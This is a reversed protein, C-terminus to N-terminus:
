FVALCLIFCCFLFFSIRNLSKEAVIEQRRLRPSNSGSLGYSNPHRYVNESDGYLRGYVTGGLLGATPHHSSGVPNDELSFLSSGSDEEYSDYVDFNYNQNQDLDGYAFQQSSANNSRITALAKNGFASPRPPILTGRADDEAHEASQGRGYLPVMTTHSIDAKCVPCQPPEDPALSASQVHLWKYICPWCYLHGCLTVIPESAFDLCINCDFCPKFKESNAMSAPIQKRWGHSFYHEFAM